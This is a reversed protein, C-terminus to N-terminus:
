SEMDKKLKQIEKRIEELDEETEQKERRYSLEMLSFALAFLILMGVPKKLFLILAGLMPVAGIAEGKIASIDIAADATNNADGQTIVTDGDISIVRHMILEHAKQYVVIDGVEYDYNERVIVLDNTSMAPEMSGSLVVAVGYGFPMPLPNGVVKNANLMYVNIGLVTGCLVLLLTRVVNKWKHKM